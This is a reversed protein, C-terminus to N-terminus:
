LISRIRVSFRNSGISYSADDGAIKGDMAQGIPSRPSIVTVGPLEIRTNLVLIRQERGDLLTDVDAGPEVRFRLPAEAIEKRAGELVELTDRGISAQRAYDERQTDYRSQMKGDAANRAAESINVWNAQIGIKEDLYDLFPKKDEPHM